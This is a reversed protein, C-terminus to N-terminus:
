LDFGLISMRENDVYKFSQPAKFDKIEDTSKPPKLPKFNDIKLTFVM